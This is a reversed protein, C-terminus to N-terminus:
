KEVDVVVVAAILELLVFTSELFDICEGYGDDDEIDDDFGVTCSSSAL